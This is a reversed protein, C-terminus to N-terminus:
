DRVATLAVSASCGRRRLQSVTSSGAMLFGDRHCLWEAHMARLRVLPERFLLKQHFRSFSRIPTGGAFPCLHEGMVTFRVMSPADKFKCDCNPGKDGQPDQHPNDQSESVPKGKNNSYGSCPKEYTEEHDLMIATVAGEEPMAQRVIPNATHEAYERQCGVVRPPTAMSNMM